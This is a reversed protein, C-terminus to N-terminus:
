RVRQRPRIASEALAGEARATAATEAVYTERCLLLRPRYAGDGSAEASRSTM